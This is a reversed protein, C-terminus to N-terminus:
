VVHMCSNSSFIVSEFSGRSGVSQVLRCAFRWHKNCVPFLLGCLAGRYITTEAKKVFLYIYIHVNCDYLKAAILVCINLIVFLHITILLDTLIKTEWNKYVNKKSCQNCLQFFYSQPCVWLISKIRIVILVAFLWFFLLVTIHEEAWTCLGKEGEAIARLLDEPTQNSRLLSM